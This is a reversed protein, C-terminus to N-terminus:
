RKKKVWIEADLLSQLHQSLKEENEETKEGEDEAAAIAAVRAEAAQALRRTLREDALGDIDQEAEQLEMESGIVAEHKRLEERLTRETKDPAASDSLHPHIAVARLSKLFTVPDEGLSHSMADRLPNRTDDDSLAHHLHSLLSDHIPRLNESAIPCRDLEAELELATKPRLIAACLIVSERVMREPATAAALYSTKTDSKPTKPAHRPTWVNQRQNQPRSPAFLGRRLDAIAAGYHSRLSKDQIKLIVQRLRADLAARREPSDFSQGETERRWLLNVMPEAQELLKQMAKAGSSKLLDDPDQGEPLIVFRLSKGAELLPMALDILREAARIGAKDGDLAIIPEPYIRWLMALQHETIATGLPAVAQAFGYQALAIVDM